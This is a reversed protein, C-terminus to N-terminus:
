DQLKIEEFSLDSYPTNTYIAIYAYMYSRPPLLMYKLKVVDKQILEQSEWAPKVEVVLLNREDNGREHVIIDPRRIDGIADRKPDTGTGQRNYECNVHWGPLTNELYVALRQSIAQEHARQRIMDADNQLFRERVVELVVSIDPVTNM